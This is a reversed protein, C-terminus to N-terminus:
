YPVLGHWIADALDSIRQIAYVMYADLFTGSAGFTTSSPINIAIIKVKTLFDADERPDFPDVGAVADLVHAGHSFIGALERQGRMNKLNMVGTATNFGYEDLQGLTDGGSYRSILNDIDRRYLERGFPLYKQKIGCSSEWPALMQWASLIRSSGDAHRFRNHGLPIGTDIVGVIISDDEIEPLVEYDPLWGDNCNIHDEFGENKAFNPIPVFTDYPKHTKSEPEGSLPSQNPVLVSRAVQNGLEEPDVNLAPRQVFALGLGKWWNIYPSSEEFREWNSWERIM